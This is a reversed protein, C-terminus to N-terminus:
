PSSGARGKPTQVYLTLEDAKGALDQFEKVDKVPQLKQDKVVKTIM